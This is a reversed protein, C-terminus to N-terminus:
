LVAKMQGSYPGHLGLGHVACDRKNVQCVLPAALWSTRPQMVAHSQSAAHSRREVGSRRIMLGHCFYEKFLDSQM